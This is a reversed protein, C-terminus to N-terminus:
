NILNLGALMLNPTTDSAAVNIWNSVPDMVISSGSVSTSTTVQSVISGTSSQYVIVTMPSSTLLVVMEMNSVSFAIDAV